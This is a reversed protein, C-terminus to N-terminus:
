VVPHSAIVCDPSVDRSGHTAPLPFSPCVCMGKPALRDRLGLCTDVEEESAVWVQAWLTESSFPHLLVGLVRVSSDAIAGPM